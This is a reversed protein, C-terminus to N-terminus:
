IVLLMDIYVQIERLHLEMLYIRMRSLRQEPTESV